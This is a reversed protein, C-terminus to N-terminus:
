QVERLAVVLFWKKILNHRTIFLPNKYSQLHGAWHNSWSTGFCKQFGFMCLFLTMTVRQHDAAPRIGQRKRFRSSVMVDLFYAWCILSICQVRFCRCGCQDVSHAWSKEMVVGSQVNCLWCKLLQIFQAIFNQRMWWIWKVEQCSVVVEEHMKVVKWLSVAEVILLLCFIRELLEDFGLASIKTSCCYVFKNRM